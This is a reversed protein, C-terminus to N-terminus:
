RVSTDLWAHMEWDLPCCGSSESLDRALAQIEAYNEYSWQSWPARVAKIVKKAAASNDSNEIKASALLGENKLMNLFYGDIPAHSYRDVRRLVNGFQPLDLIWYYKLTMNLWKQAQGPYFTKEGEGVPKHVDSGHAKRATAVISRYSDVDVEEGCLKEHLCDFEDQPEAHLLVNSGSVIAERAKKLLEKKKAETEKRGDKGNAACFRLTRSLDRYARQACLDLDSDMSESAMKLVECYSEGFLTYVLFGLTASDVRFRKGAKEIM